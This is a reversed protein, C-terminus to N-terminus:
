LIQYFLSQSGPFRDQRRIRTAYPDPRLTQLDPSSYGPVTFVSKKAVKCVVNLIISTHIEPSSDADSSPPHSSM